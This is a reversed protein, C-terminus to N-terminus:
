VCGPAARARWRVVSADLAEGIPPRTELAVHGADAVGKAGEKVEGSRDPTRRQDFSAVARDPKLAPDFHGRNEPSIQYGIQCGLPNSIPAFLPSSNFGDFGDGRAMSTALRQREFV